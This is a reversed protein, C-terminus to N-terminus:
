RMLFFRNTASAPDSETKSKDWQLDKRTILKKREAKEPHPLVTTFNNIDIIIVNDESPTTQIKNVNYLKNLGDYLLNKCCLKYHNWTTHKNFVKEDRDGACIYTMIVYKQQIKNRTVDCFESYDIMSTKNIYKWRQRLCNDEYGWNWINPFGNMREFDRGYLSFIGGFTQKYGYYHKVFGKQTRIDTEDRCGFLIDVDNFIFLIDLYNNPYCEKAHLFGLNKMAGRNFFRKDNQHAVFIKYNQKDFLSTYHNIMIELQPERKRYPVIFIIEPIESM